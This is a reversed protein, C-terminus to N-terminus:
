ITLMEVDPTKGRHTVSQRNSGIRVGIRYVILRPYPWVKQIELDIDAAAFIDIVQLHVLINPCISLLLLITGNAGARVRAGAGQSKRSYPLMAKAQPCCDTTLPSCKGDEKPGNVTRPQPM